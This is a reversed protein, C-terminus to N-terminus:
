EIWFPWWINMIMSNAPHISQIFISPISLFPSANFSMIQVFRLRADHQRVFNWHFDCQYLFFSINLIWINRFNTNANCLHMCFSNGSYKDVISFVNSHNSRWWDSMYVCVCVFVCKCRKERSWWVSSSVSRIPLLLKMLMFKICILLNKEFNVENRNAPKKKKKKKRIEPAQAPVNKRMKNKRYACGDRSWFRMSFHTSINSFRLFNLNEMKKCKCCCFMNMRRLIPHQFQLIWHNTLRQVNKHILAYQM